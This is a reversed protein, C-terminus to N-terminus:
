PLNFDNGIGVPGHGHGIKPANKIANRTYTIANKVAIDLSLGFGLGTALASSLVCGTGHTHKTDIRHNFFLKENDGIRLVDIIVDGNTHGGTLLVAKALHIPLILSEVTNPTLCTVIPLIDNKLIELGYNDILERGSTSCVVPDLVVPCTLMKIFDAVLRAIKANGLMGIKVADIKFDAMICDLQKSFLYEDTPVVDSVTCTNQVTQATVISIAYGNMAHIAKTDAWVGAGASPDYGAISLVVPIKQTPRLNFM